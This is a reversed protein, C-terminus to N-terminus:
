KKIVAFILVAGLLLAEAKSFFSLRKQKRILKQVENASAAAVSAQAQFLNKYQLIQEQLQGIQNTLTDIDAQYYAVATDRSSLVANLQGNAATLMNIISDCYTLESLSDLAIKAKQYEAKWVAITVRSVNLAYLRQNYQFQISDIIRIFEQSDARIIFWLSDNRNQLKVAVTKISDSRNKLDKLVQQDGRNCDKFFFTAAIAILGGAIASIVIKSM